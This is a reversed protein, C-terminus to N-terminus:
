SYMVNKGCLNSQEKDCLYLCDECIEIGSDSNDQQSTYIFNTAPDAGRAVRFLGVITAFSSVRTGIFTDSMIAIAMDSTPQPIQVGDPVIDEAVILAPGIDADKKLNKIVDKNQGDGILVIPRDINGGMIAKIYSPTMWCEDKPLLDGVRDECQGELWRSHIAVYQDTTYSTRGGFIMKRDEIHDRLANYLVLNKKAIGHQQFLAGLISQRRNKIISPTFKNKHDKVYYYTKKTNLKVHTKNHKEKTLGLADLREEHVLVVPRLTELKVHFETANKGDHFLEKLINSAWGRIAVVARNNPLDGQEDLARDIAHLITVFQNNFRGYQKMHGLRYVHTIQSPDFVKYEGASKASTPFTANFMNASTSTMKRNVDVYASLLINNLVLSIIALLVAVPLIGVNKLIRKM